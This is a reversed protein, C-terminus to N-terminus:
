KKDQVYQKGTKLCDAAKHLEIGLYGAHDPRISPSDACIERVLKLADFGSYCGVFEGSGPTTHTVVIKGESIEILFNGTPDHYDIQRCIALYQQQILQEANEWTDDYIHASQSITILPGMKLDYKSRKAIEDRVHQQLARLGMANAPWAAFMDNSRLTATLSLENDVVRLWIHNLCPSGGKDHDKVDWLNMVASAADIEGILKHIVQEIQDRGFWSRLRQGYTYKVGETYPADDLIQKLYEDIFPRDVPLYNPEPFYFNPPEDTIIAMLDILEQWQGDYGTPRITGTTKIRHIIKVWTEAITKGEIRHGYRPGPLVTPVVTSMPFELPLGWPEVAERQAFSKALTCAEATSKAEKFEISQRLKELASADVEIDIYGPITSRIVYALRGTDSLGEEFGNRFFDLLCSGAGANKDENTANLVVLYRVHPNFLLNRILFNLGRTPSYLQGIVAYEQPHLHKAIASKVTWGTIVATQGQGYILQNPKHLAKYQYQIAKGTATM